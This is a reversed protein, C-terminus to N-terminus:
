KAPNGRGTGDATEYKLNPGNQMGGQYLFRKQLAVVAIETQKQIQTPIISIRISFSVQGGGGM